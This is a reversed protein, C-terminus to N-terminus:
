LLIVLVVVRARVVTVKAIMSAAIVAAAEGEVVLVKIVVVAAAEGKVAAVAIVATGTGSTNKM